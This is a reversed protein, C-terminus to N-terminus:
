TKLCCVLLCVTKCQITAPVCWVFYCWSWVFCLVCFYVCLLPCVVCFSYLWDCNCNYLNINYPLIANNQIREASKFKWFNGFHLGNQTTHRLTLNADRVLPWKWDPTLIPSNQYFRVTSLESISNTILESVTDQVRVQTKVAAVKM